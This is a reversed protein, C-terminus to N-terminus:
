DGVSLGQANQGPGFVNAENHLSRAAQILANQCRTDDTMDPYLKAIGPARSLNRRLRERDGFSLSCVM